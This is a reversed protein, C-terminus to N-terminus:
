TIDELQKMMALFQFTRVTIEGTVITITGQTLAPVDLGLVFRAFARSVDNDPRDASLGGARELATVYEAYRSMLFAHFDNLQETSLKPLKVRIGDDLHLWETKLLAYFGDRCALLVEPRSSGIRVGALFFYFAGLEAWLRSRTVASMQALVLGSKRRLNEYLDIWLAPVQGVQNALLQAFALGRAEQPSLM